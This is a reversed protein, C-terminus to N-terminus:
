SVAVVRLLFLFWFKEGFWGKKRPYLGEACYGSAEKEGYVVRGMLAAM